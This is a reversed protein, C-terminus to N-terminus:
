SSAAIADKLSVDDALVDEGNAKLEVNINGRTAKSYPCMEHAEIAIQKALKSELGPLKVDLVASIFFGGEDQNLSVEVDVAVNDANQGRKKAVAMVAGGFCAGYGCAFLQEPNTGASSGPKALKVSLANNDTTEAKGERGSIATAQATYLTKM